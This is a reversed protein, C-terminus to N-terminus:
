KGSVARLLTAIYPMSITQTCSHGFLQSHMISVAAAPAARQQEAVALEMICTTNAPLLLLRLFLMKSM